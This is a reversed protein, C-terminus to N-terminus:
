DAIYVSLKNKIINRLSENDALLKNKKRMFITFLVIKAIAFVLVVITTSIIILIVREQEM